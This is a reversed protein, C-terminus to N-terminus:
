CTAAATAPSSVSCPPVSRTPCGFGVAFTTQNVTGPPLSSVLPATNENGDTLALLAKNPHSAGSGNILRSGVLLGAGISTAGRPDLDPGTLVTGLSAWKPSMPLIEDAVHDFRVIGIEDDRM